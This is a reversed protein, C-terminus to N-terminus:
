PWQTGRNPHGHWVIYEPGHGYTSLRIVARHAALAEDIAERTLPRLRVDFRRRMHKSRQLLGDAELMRAEGPGVGLDRLTSRRVYRTWDAM